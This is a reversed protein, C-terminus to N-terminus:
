WHELGVGADIEEVGDRLRVAEDLGRTGHPSGIDRTTRAGSAYGELTGSLAFILILLAGDFWQGIAAAGVAAVIMLLDVDLARERVLTVLGDRAQRYGGLVYGVILVSVGAVHEGSRLLLWGVLVAIACLATTLAEAHDRWARM